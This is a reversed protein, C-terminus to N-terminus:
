QESLCKRNRDRLRQHVVQPQPLAQLVGDSGRDQKHVRLGRQGKFGRKVLHLM